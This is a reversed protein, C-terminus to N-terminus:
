TMGGYNERACRFAFTNAATYKTNDVGTIDFVGNVVNIANAAGELVIEGLLNVTVGSDINLTGAYDTSIFQHGLRVAMRPDASHYGQLNVTGPAGSSPVVWGM